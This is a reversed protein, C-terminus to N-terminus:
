SDEQEEQEKSDVNVKSERERGLFPRWFCQLGPNFNSGIFAVANETPSEKKSSSATENSHSRLRVEGPNEGECVVPETVPLGFIPGPPLYGRVSAGTAVARLGMAIADETAQQRKLAVQDVSDDFFILFSLSLM